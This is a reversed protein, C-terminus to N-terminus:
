QREQFAVFAAEFKAAEQAGEEVRVHLTIRAKEKERLTARFSQLESDEPLLCIARITGRVPQLFRISSSAIVVQANEDRLQLWLFGYGALTAIANVSGGFATQLHNHNLALPAEIAFCQAHDKVVRIGMARTIPIREHFFQEAERLLDINM